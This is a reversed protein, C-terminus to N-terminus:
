TDPKSNNTVDYEKWKRIVLIGAFASRHKTRKAAKKATAISIDLAQRMSTSRVRSMDIVAAEKTIM